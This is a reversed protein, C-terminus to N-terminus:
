NYRFQAYTLVITIEFDEIKMNTFRNQYIETQYIESINQYREKTYETMGGTHPVLTGCHITGYTHRVM